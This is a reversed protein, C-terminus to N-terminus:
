FAGCHRSSYTTTRNLLYFHNAPVRIETVQGFIPKKDLSALNLCHLLSKIQDLLAFCWIWPILIAHLMSDGKRGKGQLLSPM